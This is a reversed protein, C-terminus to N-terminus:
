SNIDGGYEFIQYEAYRINVNFNLVIGFNCIHLQLSIIKYSPIVVVHSVTNFPWLMLIKSVYTGETWNSLTWSHLLWAIDVISCKSGNRGMRWSKYEKWRRKWSTGQAKTSIVYLGISSMNWECVVPSSKVSYYNLLIVIASEIRLNL